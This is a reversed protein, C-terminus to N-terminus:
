NLQLYSSRKQRKALYLNCANFLDEVKGQFRKFFFSARLALRGGRQAQDLKDQITLMQEKDKKVRTILKNTKSGISKISKTMKGIEAIGADFSKQIDKVNKGETVGSAIAYSIPCAIFALPGFALCVAAGGYAKARAAAIEAQTMTAIEAKKLRAWQELIILEGEVKVADAAARTLKSIAEKVDGDMIKTEALYTEIAIQLMEDSEEFSLTFILDDCLNRLKTVVRRSSDIALHADRNVNMIVQLAQRQKQEMDVNLKNLSKAVSTLEEAIFLGKVGQKLDDVMKKYVDVGATILAASTAPDASETRYIFVGLFLLLMMKKSIM